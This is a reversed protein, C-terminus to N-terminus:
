AFGYERSGTEGFGPQLLRAAAFCRLIPFTPVKWADEGFASDSKASELPWRHLMCKVTVDWTKRQQQQLLRCYAMLGLRDRMQHYHRIHLCARPMIGGDSNTGGLRCCQSLALYSSPWTSVRAVSWQTGQDQKRSTGRLATDLHKRYM